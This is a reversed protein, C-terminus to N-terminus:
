PARSFFYFFCSCFCCHSMQLSKWLLVARKVVRFINTRVRCRVQCLFSHGWVMLLLLDAKTASRCLRSVATLKDTSHQMGRQPASLAPSSQLAGCCCSVLLGGGGAAQRDPCWCCWSLPCTCQPLCFGLLHRCARHSFGQGWQAARRQTESATCSSCYTLAAGWGPCCCKGSGTSKGTKAENQWM